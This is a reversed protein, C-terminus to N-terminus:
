EALKISYNIPTVRSKGIQEWTTIPLINVNSGRNVITKPIIRHLIHMPVKPDEDIHTALKVSNEKILKPYSPERKQWTDLFVKLPIKIDLEEKWQM